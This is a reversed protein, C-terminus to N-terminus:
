GVVKFEDSEVLSLKHKIGLKSLRSMVAERMGHKVYVVLEGDRVYVGIVGPISMVLKVANKGKEAM